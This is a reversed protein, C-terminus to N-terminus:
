TSNLVGLLHIKLSPTPRLLHVQVTPHAAIRILAMAPLGVLANQVGCGLGAM